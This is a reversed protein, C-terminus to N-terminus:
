KSPKHKKMFEEFLKFIDDKTFCFEEDKTDPKENRVPLEMETNRPIQLEFISAGSSGGSGKLASNQYTVKMSDYSMTWDEDLFVEEDNSEVNLKCSMLQVKFLEVKVLIKKESTQALTLTVKAIVDGTEMKALMGTSASDVAKSVAVCKGVAQQQSSSKADGVAESLDVGWSWDFLEIQQTFGVHQADGKIDAIDLFIEAFEM